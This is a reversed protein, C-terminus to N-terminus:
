DCRKPVDEDNPDTESGSPEEPDKEKQAAKKKEPVKAKGKQTQVPKATPMADMDEFLTLNTTEEYPRWGPLTGVISGLTKELELIHKLRTVCGNLLNSSQASKDSSRQPKSFANLLERFFNIATLLSTCVSERQSWSLSRINEEAFDRKYMVIGMGQVKDIGDLSDNEYLEITQLLKFCPPLLKIFSKNKPKVEVSDSAISVLCEEVIPFISVSAEDDGDNSEELTALVISETNTELSGGVKATSNNLKMWIDKPMYNSADEDGKTMLAEMDAVVFDDVIMGTFSDKIWNVLREHLKKEAIYYSLEDYFMELFAMDQGKCHHHVLTMLEIAQVLRPSRPAASSSVTASRYSTSGVANPNIEEDVTVSGLVKVLALAGLIGTKKYKPESNGLQKRVIIRMDSFLSSEFSISRSITEFDEQKIALIAFIEYLMRMQEFSLHHVYDLLGKILLTFPSLLKPECRVLSLLAQLAANTGIHVILSGLVMQRSQIDFTKFLSLFISSAVSSELVSGKRLLLEALRLMSNFYLKLGQHYRGITQCLLRSSLQRSKVKKGILTDIKKSLSPEPRFLLLLLVDVEKFHNKDKIGSIVKLWADLIFKQCKVGTKLSDLILMEISNTRDQIENQIVMSFNLHRRIKGIIDVVNDKNATQLLFRLVIPQTSPIHELDARELLTEDPVGITGLSDLVQVVMDSNEDMIKRLSTVISSQESDPVIEPLYGIIDRQIDPVSASTELIEIVKETFQPPNVIHDLFRFQRVILKVIHGQDGAAEEDSFLLTPIREVLVDLLLGQVIDIGMLIKVLSEGGRRGKFPKLLMWLNPAKDILEIFGQVFDNAVTPQHGSTKLKQALSRQFQVIDCDLELYLCLSGREEEINLGAHDTIDKFFSAPASAM